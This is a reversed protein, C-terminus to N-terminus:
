ALDHGPGVSYVRNHGLYTKLWQIYETELADFSNLVCGWSKTNALIGDKVFECDPDSQKYHKFLSPFNEPKFVPSGPLHSLKIESLSKLKEINSWMYDCLSVVFAGSAFFTLRPIQLQTALRETWGLFFDSIIAVPPNTQSNFWNLLPDHLKGLAAMIPLNGSNGLDKVHEVGQPILPHSPFPFVLPTISSPHTSLLPSLFPLSKPTVLITITLGRLALQHTLDLLPLMHGQAPYPFVLIHPHTATATATASM